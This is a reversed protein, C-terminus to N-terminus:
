GRGARCRRVRLGQLAAGNIADAGKDNYPHVHQPRAARDEGADVVADGPGGGGGRRGREQRADAEAVAFEDRHPYIRQSTARDEGAGAAAYPDGGGGDRRSRDERADAKAVAYEDRRPYIRQSGASDE